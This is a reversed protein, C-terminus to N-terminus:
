RGRKRRLYLFLLTAVALTVAPLLIYWKEALIYTIPKAKVVIKEVNSKMINGQADYAEIFFEIVTGAKQPPIYAVWYGNEYNMEVMKWEGYDVRYCLIVRDLRSLNDTVVAKITINDEEVPHGPTVQISEIVPPEADVIITKSLNAGLYRGISPARVEIVYTATKDPVTINCKFHGCSDTVALGAYSRNVYINLISYRLPKFDKGFLLGNLAIIRGDGAKFTSLEFDLSVEVQRVAAKYVSYELYNGHEDYVQLTYSIFETESPVEIVAEFWGDGIPTMEVIRTEFPPCLEVKLNVKWVGVDDGCKVKFHLSGPTFYVPVDVDEIWPPLKDGYELKYNFVYKVKLINYVPLDTKEYISMIYQGYDITCIRIGPDFMPYFFDEPHAINEIMYTGEGMKHVVISPPHKGLLATGTRDKFIPAEIFLTSNIIMLKNPFAPLYPITKSYNVGPFSQIVGYFFSSSSHFPIFRIPYTFPKRNETYEAMYTMGWEFGPSIYITQKLGFAIEGGRVLTYPLSSVEFLKSLFFTYIKMSLKAGLPTESAADYRANVKMFDDLEYSLSPTHPDFMHWGIFYVEPSVAFSGKLFYGEPIAEFFMLPYLMEHESVYTLMPLSEYSNGATAHRDLSIWSILYMTSLPYPYSFGIASSVPCLPKGSHPAIQVDVRHLKSLDIVHNSIQLREVHTVNSYLIGAIKLKAENDAFPPYLFRIIYSGPYLIFPLDMVTALFVYLSSSPDGIRSAYIEESYLSEVIVLGMCANLLEGKLGLLTVNLASLTIANFIMRYTKNSCELMIEGFLHGVPLTERFSIEVSLIEEEFPKLSLNYADIHLLYTYDIGNEFFMRKHLEVELTYNSVSAINFQSKYGKLVVPGFALNAPYTLLKPLASEVVDIVGAGCAYYDEEIPRACEILAAKVEDQGWDPHIQLLLAAAGAVHPTAMSTGSAMTYYDNIPYGMSTNAARAAIINEGPAVIDPKISWSPLVPGRSSWASVKFPPKTCSGVTIVEDMSGPFSITFYGYFGGNGAAVVVIAGQSIAWKIAEAVPEVYVDTGLSMSLIDVGHEVAWEIGSIVWSSFGYGLSCLVKVNLLYAGPAVGKFKGDSAAGTGAAISACHTGHGNYDMPDEDAAGDGDFDVFSVEGVVKPDCTLPDDDLDDLDPHSKDIGTDLIAIVIGSGNVRFGVEREISLWEVPDKIAPVSDNLCAHFVVDPYVGKVCPLRALDYLKSFPFMTYVFSFERSFGTVRGGFRYISDVGLDIEDVEVILRVFGDKLIGEEVLFSVNFLLPDVNGYSLLREDVVMDDFVIFSVNDMCSPAMHYSYFSEDFSFGSYVTFYNAVFVSLLLVICLASIMRNTYVMNM